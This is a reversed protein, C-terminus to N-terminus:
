SVMERELERMWEEASSVDGVLLSVRESAAIVAGPSVDKKEKEGVDAKATQNIDEEPCRTAVDSGTEEAIAAPMTTAQELRTAAKLLRPYSRGVLIVRKAGEQLLREAIAYGIGSTGGTVM